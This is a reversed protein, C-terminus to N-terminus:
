YAKGIYRDPAGQVQETELYIKDGKMLILITAFGRGWSKDFAQKFEMIENDIDAYCSISYCFDKDTIKLNDKVFNYQECKQPVLILKKVDLLKTWGHNFRGAFLNRKQSHTLEFLSRERREKLIFNKVFLNIIEQKDM